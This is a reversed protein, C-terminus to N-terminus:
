NALPEGNDVEEQSEIPTTIYLDINKVVEGTSNAFAENGENIYFQQLNEFATKANEYEERQVYCDAIDKLSKEESATDVYKTVNDKMEALESDSCEGNRLSERSEEKLIETESDQVIPSSDRNIWYLLFGGVAIVLM